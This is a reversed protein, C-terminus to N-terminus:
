PEATTGLRRWFRGYKEILGAQSFELEARFDRSRYEYRNEGLRRYSQRLPSVTLHPFQIWAATVEREEGVELQLRRIPLTNTAPTIQIDVDSLNELDPREKGDITWRAAEDVSIRIERIVPPSTVEVWVERTSWDASCAVGYRAALSSEGMAGVVAGRLSYGNEARWLSALEM